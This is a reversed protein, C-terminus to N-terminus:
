LEEVEYDLKVSKFKDVSSTIDSIDEVFDPKICPLILKNSVPVSKSVIRSDKVLDHFLESMTDGLRGRNRLELYDELEVRITTYQKDILM